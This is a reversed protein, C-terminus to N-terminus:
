RRRIRNVVSASLLATTSLAYRPGAWRAYRVVGPIFLAAALLLSGGDLAAIAADPFVDVTTGMVAAATAPALRAVSEGLSQRYASVFDPGTARLALASGWLRLNVDIVVHGGEPSHVAEINALGQGGVVETVRRGLATMAPDEIVEVATAPGLSSPDRRRTIFVTEDLLSAETRCSVYRVIDGRVAEEFYVADAGGLATVAAYTEALSHCLAVGYGGFGVRGKVFLPTELEEVADEVRTSGVLFRPVPIGAGHLQTTMAFKDLNQMRWRLHTIVHRPVASGELSEVLHPLVAETCQIDAVDDLRVYQGISALDEVSDLILFEDYNLSSMVRTLPSREVSVRVTRYGHRRMASGFQDFCTWRGTDVFLITPRRM